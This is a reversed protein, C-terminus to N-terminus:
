LDIPNYMRNYIFPTIIIYSGYFVMSARKGISPQNISSTTSGKYLLYIIISPIGFRSRSRYWYSMKSIFPNIMAKYHYIYHNSITSLFGPQFLAVVSAKDFSRTVMPAESRNGTMRIKKVSFRQHAASTQKKPTGFSGSSM